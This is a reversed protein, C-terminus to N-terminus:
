SGDLMIRNISAVNLRKHHQSLTGTALALKQTIILGLEKQNEQCSMSDSQTHYLAQLLITSTLNTANDTLTRYAELDSAEDIDIWLIIMYSAISSVDSRSAQRIRM